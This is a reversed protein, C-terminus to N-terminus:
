RSDSPVYHNPVKKGPVGYPNSVKKNKTEPAGKEPDDDAKRGEPPLKRKYDEIARAASARIRVNEDNLAKKLAESISPNGGGIQALVEIAAIRIRVEENTSIKLIKRTLREAVAKRVPDERLTSIIEALTRGAGSSANLDEGKLSEILVPITSDSDGVIKWLAAACVMRLKFDDEGMAAALAPASSKADPGISFLCEVAMSRTSAPLEKDTLVTLLPPLSVTTKRDIKWLALATRMRMETNDSTLYKSLAPIAAEADPGFNALHYFSLVIGSGDTGQIGELLDSIYEQFFDRRAADDYHLITLKAGDWHFVAKTRGDKLALAYCADPNIRHLAARRRLRDKDIMGIAPGWIGQRVLEEIASVDWEEKVNDEETLFNEFFNYVVRDEFRKKNWEPAHHFHKFVPEANETKIASKIEQLVSVAYDRAPPVSNKRLTEIDQSLGGGFAMVVLLVVSVIRRFPICITPM